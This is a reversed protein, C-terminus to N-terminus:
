KHFKISKAPVGVATCDSPLNSVVVSGAGIVTNKGIDIGQIIASGTGINTCEGINVIGSINTGPAITTYDGITTDHGVTCGLNLIVHSGIKINVTLVNCACIISGEGFEVQNSYKVNPHILIPYKNSSGQLRKIIKEKVIPNGIANVVNLTQKMLWNTDGVVEYGNIYQGQIEKNDDVFGVINWQMRIENIEEILWAVEKGFGGAGIIVIDKM